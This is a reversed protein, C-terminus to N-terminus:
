PRSYWLIACVRDFYGDSEPTEEESTVTGHVFVALFIM